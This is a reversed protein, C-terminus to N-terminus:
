SRKPIPEVGPGTGEGLREGIQGTLWLYHDSPLDKYTLFPSEGVPPDNTCKFIATGEDIEDFMAVYLSEAGAKRAAEAQAWLFRGGHRPIQDLKGPQGKWKKLNHWSFGPFIVPLYHKGERKCWALDPKYFAEGHELATDINHKRGVAWPSLVDAKRFVDHLNQDPVADRKQERWRYPIGLMVSFRGGMSVRDILEACDDPTYERNDNFGVGWIAVLPKGNHHIYTPDETVKHHNVLDRWDEAVIKQPEGKKMGSLDYMTMWLRGTKRAASRAHKIVAHHHRRRKAHKLGTGFRQIAVGDIGYTQMWEFHRAITKAHASSYVQAVRGDRHRFATDFREDADFERLDPWYDITCAGPHFEHSTQYHRFAMDYGDGKANFWGQYGCITKGTLERDAPAESPVAYVSPVILGSATTAVFQRRTIKM